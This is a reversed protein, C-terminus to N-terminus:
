FRHNWNLRVTFQSHTIRVDPIGMTPVGPVTQTVQPAIALAAAVSDQKSVQVGLGVTYHREATAPFLPNLYRASIPNKGYNYGFRLALGPRPRYEVGVMYVTQDDWKQDMEVNLDGRASAFRVRFVDMTESWKLRKVDSVFMWRENPQYSVGVAWTTPWEFNQITYHGPLAMVLAGQMVGPPVAGMGLTGNGSFDKLRTKSHFAAGIAWQPTIQYHVGLKYAWGHGRTQQKFDNGDSLDFRAFGNAPMTGLMGAMSGSARLQGANMGAAMQAASMDMQMDLGAWVFDVQAALALQDTVKKALPFMARAFGVESRVPLGSLSLFSNAAYETGMGGQALIAVGYSWGRDTRIYSLSPMWYATGGSQATMGMADVHSAVDPGLRTIGMGFVAGDQRLALTAPNNMVASNGSDYAMAAGGLGGARAGFAEMNMGNTAHAAVPLAVLAIAGWRRVSM